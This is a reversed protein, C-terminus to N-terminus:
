LAIGMRSCSRRLEQEWQRMVDEFTLCTRVLTARDLIGAGIQQDLFLMMEEIINLGADLEALANGAYPRNAQLALSAMWNFRERLMQYQLLMSHFDSLLLDVRYNVSNAQRAWRNATSRVILAQDRTAAGANRLSAVMTPGVVVGDPPVQTWVGPTVAFFAFTFAAWWLRRWPSSHKNISM